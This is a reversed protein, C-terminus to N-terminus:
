RCESVIAAAFLAAGLYVNVFYGIGLAGGLFVLVLFSTIPNMHTQGNLLPITGLTRACAVLM